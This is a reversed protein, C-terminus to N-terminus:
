PCIAMLALIIEEAAGIGAPLAGSTDVGDDLRCLHAADIRLGIQGINEFADCIMRDM